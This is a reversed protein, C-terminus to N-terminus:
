PGFIVGHNSDHAHAGGDGPFYIHYKLNGANDRSAAIVKGNWIGEPHHNDTHELVVDMLKPNLMETTVNSISPLIAALSSVGVQSSRGELLPALDKLEVM